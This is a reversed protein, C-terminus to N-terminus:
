WAREYQPPAKIKVNLAKAARRPWYPDRLIERALFVMDAQESMLITDAQAPDIIMGVAGTALEVDRRIAEAFEVQYGPGVPIKVGPIVGGSSVDVLDVGLGKFRRCLEISQAVDWGGEKWDTASLRVFLPLREPWVERVTQTVRVLFRIRNEFSGGYADKRQNSFPSLFQHLLYGHASHIEVVQFGAALARRAASQFEGVIDDIESVSLEHPVTYGEDFALASASVPTWAAQEKKLPGGGLWPAATSAKRGAHALQIGVAAGQQKVFRVIPRWAETQSDLYIGTDAPSIRGIASVGSAEAMVLGAGGVARSGLHVLHWTVPHGDEASYQCMSSVAIRNKFEIDRLRFDAFLKM